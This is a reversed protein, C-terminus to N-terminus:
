YKLPANYNSQMVIGLYNDSIMKETIGLKKYEIYQQPYHFVKFLPECPYIPISNFNLLSEGYWSFESNCYEILNEFKLGNPKIYGNELDEWVKTSWIVPSPGFDYIKSNREFVETMIKKRDEIFGLKPDFGIENIKNVSWSFLEKQEHMVTYPISDNYMFDNIYFPKIFYSDSDICIYNESLKLKWFSSKVLQQHIWGPKNSQYIDDDCIITVGDINKFQLLDSRPVSIYFHIKDENYKKVSSVLNIIRNYDGM